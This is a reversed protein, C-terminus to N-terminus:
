FNISAEFYFSRGPMPINEPIQINALEVYRTDFANRLSAAVNIPGFLKKGRVIFDFTQYDNLPRSDNPDRARGAIWNMQSQLQWQPLFKWIAAFYVHHEPVGAPPRGGLSTRANQWAYNGLVDWQESLQWNWEFESGYGEQSNSNQFSLTARGKDPMLDIFDELHYFYFNAALRLASMPRYDIAWEVTNITEPNLRANGLRLPNNTSYLETFSPARFARGYLWKSTLQENVNWVLAVRPNITNGFDSYFDYRLGTTLQWNRAIQWEDQAALSWVSRDSDPLSVNPTNTLDVLQGNIVNIQPRPLLSGAPIAGKGINAAFRATIQEYRYSTNVRLLHEAFGQYVLGLELTPVDVQRGLFNSVGDPFKALASWNNFRINGDSAIPLLANNPFVQFLADFDAHLHSMHAWLQWNKFLDETSYRVDGVFQQVNARGTPDLAGGAGARTGGNIGNFGWLGIDWHKRQLSLRGQISEYRTNLAGPALSAQTGFQADIVSQRDRQLIRQDDGQTHQYQFSSAVKWAGHEGGYQGWGSQTDWNGLRAGTTVGPMDEAKKTIINIVGAFADAGYLASGPGRIVEIRQIGELSLEIGTFLSGLFPTTIRTGDLLILLESNTANQIGRVSYQYDGSLVQIGAHMGPITELVEHLETAGMSKIQEATIVSTVSASETISKPTGSAISVPILALEAPSMAFYNEVNNDASATPTKLLWCCLLFYVRAKM